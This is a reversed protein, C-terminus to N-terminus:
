LLPPIFQSAGLAHDLAKIKEADTEVSSGESWGCVKLKRVSAAHVPETELDARLNDINSVLSDLSDSVRFTINVYEPSTWAFEAGLHILVPQHVQQVWPM